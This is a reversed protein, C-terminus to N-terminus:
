GDDVGWPLRCVPAETGNFRPANIRMWRGIAALGSTAAPTSCAKLPRASTSSFIAARQRALRGAPPDSRRRNNGTRIPRTTAWHDNMTQCSELDRRPNRFRSRRNPYHRFRRAFEQEEFDRTGDRSAGVRNKIIIDPQLSRVYRALDRGREENWTHEWEGDFWLVSIPGYGTLLERLQIKMYDFYKDFDGTRGFKRMRPEWSAASTTPINLGHDFLLASSSATGSAPPPFSGSFTAGAVAHGHHRIGGAEFRLPRATMTSPRAIIYKMGGDPGRPGLRGRRDALSQIKPSSAYEDDPIPRQRPGNATASKGQWEPRSPTCVSISSCAFRAERWRLRADRKLPRKPRRAPALRRRFDSDFPGRDYAQADERRELM